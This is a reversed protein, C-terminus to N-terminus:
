NKLQLNEITTVPGNFSNFPRLLPAYIPELLVRDVAFIHKIKWTSGAAESGVSSRLSVTDGKRFNLLERLEVLTNNLSVRYHIRQPTPGSSTKAIEDCYINLEGDEFLRYLRCVAEQSHITRVLAFERGELGAYKFSIDKIVESRHFLKQSADRGDARYVWLSSKSENLDYGECHQGTAKIKYWRTTKFVGAQAVSTFALTLSLLAKLSFFFKQM